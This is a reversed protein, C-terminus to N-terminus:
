IDYACIRQMSIAKKEREVSEQEEIAFINNM